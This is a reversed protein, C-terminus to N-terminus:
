LSTCRVDLPPRTDLLSWRLSPKRETEKSVVGATRGDDHEKAGAWPGGLSGRHLRRGAHRCLFLAAPDADPHLPCVRWVRACNALNADAEPRTARDATNGQIHSGAGGGGACTHLAQPGTRLVPATAGCRRPCGRLRPGRRRPMSVHALPKVASWAGRRGSASRPRAPSLAGRSAQACSLCEFDRREPFRPNLPTCTRKAAPTRMLRRALPANPRRRSRHAAARLAGPPRASRHAYACPRAAPPQPAPAMQSARRTDVPPRAAPPPRHPRRTTERVRAPAGWETVFMVQTDQKNYKNCKCHTTDTACKHKHTHTTRHADTAHNWTKQHQKRHNPTPM